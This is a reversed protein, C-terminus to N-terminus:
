MEKIMNPFKKASIYEGFMRKLSSFVTEAIWRSGYNVKSKWREFNKLQQLVIIKRPYCGTLQNSNKRVKIAAEIQNYFLYRFNEKSDYAGDAIVRKVDNNESANDVLKKLMRGDHVEESTVDFSVIKKKKIDVAVHIKLYGKRVNWKHPLWEGRNIVKIATSDLVIVIDNGIRENIKIDIKNIRRNITSYDPISPVEKDQNMDRLENNWNDIVDFDLIIEGRRVLSENYVHWNIM